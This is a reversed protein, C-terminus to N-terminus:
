AGTRAVDSRSRARGRAAGPRFFDFPLLADPLPDGTLLCEVAHATIPTLLIGNRYHGTAVALGPAGTWGVIPGNDPSAPRLGVSCEALEFEDIGPVLTRADDLLGHVAGARVTTEFGREESTAGVVVSGDARPVIYCPRGHVVGRITRAVDPSGPTPRLRLVQGMVPRVDPSAEVPVGGIAGCEAGATMVVVDADVLEGSGLFAGRVAGDHGFVVRAVRDRVFSVSVNTCSEILAEVLRRNDVHHDDPLEVGGRIGPSLSPVLARCASASLHKVAYGLDHHLSALDEVVLQDSSDVAVMISGTMSYGIDMGTTRVLDAAFDPWWGAGAIRLRTIATESHEAEGLPAIMGAAVWSAGRGPTPDIVTVGWGRSAMRWASALGIVGGGVFAVKRAMSKM